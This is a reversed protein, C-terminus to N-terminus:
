LSPTAWAGQCCLACKLRPLVKQLGSVVMVRSRIIGLHVFHAHPHLCFFLHVGVTRHFSDHWWQQWATATNLWIICRMNRAADCVMVRGSWSAATARIRHEPQDLAAYHSKNARQYRDAVPCKPTSIPAQTPETRGAVFRWGRSESIHPQHRKRCKVRVVGFNTFTPLATSCRHPLCTMMIMTLAFRPASHHSESFPFLHNPYCSHSNRTWRITYCCTDKIMNYLVPHTTPIPTSIILM